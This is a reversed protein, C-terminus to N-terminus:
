VDKGSQWSTETLGRMIPLIPKEEEETDGGKNREKDGGKRGQRRKGRRGGGPSHRRAGSEKANRTWEQPLDSLELNANSSQLLEAATEHSVARQVESLVMWNVLGEERCKGFLRASFKDRMEGVPVLNAVCKLMTGYTVADPKAFGATRCENFTSVATSLALKKEEPDPALASFACANLVANYSVVSPKAADDVANTMHFEVMRDLISRARQAKGEENSKAWADLATSFSIVDPRVNSGSRAADIMNQLIEDVHAASGPLKSKGWAKLLSNYTRTNPQASEDAALRHFIEEASNAADACGTTGSWANIVSNYTIVDPRLDEDEGGEKKNLAEMRDLLETAKAGARLDGSRSWADIVANFVVANPKVVSTPDLRKSSWEALMKEMIAEAREAAEAGERSHAWASIVTAYSYATPRISAGSGEAGQNKLNEMRALINEAREAGERSGRRAWANLVADCTVSTPVIAGGEPAPLGAAELKAAEEAEDMMRFLLNEARVPADRQTSRALTDIVATYTTADPRMGEGGAAGGEERMSELVKEARKAARHSGSKAHARVLSNYMAADPKYADDDTEDRLRQLRDINERARAPAAKREEAKPSHIMTEVDNIMVYRLQSIQRRTRHKPGLAARDEEMEDAAEAGSGDHDVAEPVAAAKRVTSEGDYWRVDPSDPEVPTDPAVSSLLPASFRYSSQRVSAAAAPRSRGATSLAGGLIPRHPYAAACRRQRLQQGGVPSFALSSSATAALVALGLQRRRVGSSSQTSM